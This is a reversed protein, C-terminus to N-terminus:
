EQTTEAHQKQYELLEAELDQWVLAEVEANSYQTQEYKTQQFKQTVRQRFNALIHRQISPQPMVSLQIDQTAYFDEKSFALAILDSFETLLKQRQPSFYGPQASSALLCGAIKGEFRIPHAAASAAAAPTQDQRQQRIPLSTCAADHDM